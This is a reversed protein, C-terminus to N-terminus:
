AVYLGGAFRYALELLLAASVLWVAVRLRPRGELLRALTLFVPFAALAYRGLGHFDKSSLAPIGVVVLVYLGYGWGFDRGTRYALSLAGLALVGHFVRLWTGLEETRFLLREWLSVKLWSRWGMLHDWGPAAQVNAFALPDGFKWGLYSAYALLGGVTLMPLLDFARVPLNQSRRIEWQRAMLGILVAPAVPRAATALAGLMVAWALKQRELLLFASVVLFAFLADSYM